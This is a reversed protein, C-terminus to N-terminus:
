YSQEDKEHRLQRKEWELSLVIKKEKGKGSLPFAGIMIISINVWTLM